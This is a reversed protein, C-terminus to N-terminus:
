GLLCFLLDLHFELLKMVEEPQLLLRPHTLKPLLRLLFSHPELIHGSLIKLSNRVPHHLHLLRKLIIIYCEKLYSLLIPVEM